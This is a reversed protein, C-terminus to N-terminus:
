PSKEKTMDSLVDWVEGPQILDMCRVEPCSELSRACRSVWPLSRKFLYPQNRCAIPKEIARFPITSFYTSDTYLSASGPGFLGVAPTGTLRALHLVGTDPCVIAQARQVLHWLQDLMLNGPYRPWHAPADLADILASEGPGCSLVPVMGQQEIRHALAQWCAPPWFKTPSSAGLHLVVYPSDPIGPPSQPTVRWADASWTVDPLPTDPMLMLNMDPWAVPNRPLRVQEHVPWSKYGPRDGEFARIWRAGMALALWSYRNDGPVLALDWGQNDLLARVTDPKKPDYPLPLLGYPRHRFLPIILPDMTMAVEAQPYRARLQALLPALMLTDGLLLHHCILIRQPQEPRKGPRLGHWLWWRWQMRRARTRGSM